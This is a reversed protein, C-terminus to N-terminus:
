DENRGLVSSAFSTLPFAPGPDIKRTPAVDNHGLIDSNEYKDHLAATVEIDASIQQKTYIHWGAETLENKHTLVVVEEASVVVNSRSAWARGTSQLLKGATILVIGISYKHMTGVGAAAVQM